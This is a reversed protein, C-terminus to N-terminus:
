DGNKYDLSFNIDVELYKMIPLSIEKIYPVTEGRLMKSEIIEKRTAEVFIGNRINGQKFGAKLLAEGIDTVNEPLVLLDIDNSTRYGEPYYGCLYAGKLMAYEGKYENLIETLQQVCFTFTKNKEINKEYAVNLSNRFERNVKGLMGHRKLNGYAVAPMRNFFLYGLVCPTAADILAEDFEDSKIDCIAKFLQKEKEKM